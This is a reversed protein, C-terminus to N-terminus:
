ASIVGSMWPVVVPANPHADRYSESYKDKFNLKPHDAQVSCCFGDHSTKALFVFFLGKLLCHGSTHVFILGTSFFVLIFRVKPMRLSHLLLVVRGFLCAALCLCTARCLASFTFWYATVQGCIM